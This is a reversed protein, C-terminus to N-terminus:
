ASKREGHAMNVIPLPIRLRRSLGSKKETADLVVLSDSMVMPEGSLQFVEGYLRIQNGKTFGLVKLRACLTVEKDTM